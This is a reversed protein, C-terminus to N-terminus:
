AVWRIIDIVIMAIGLLLIVGIGILSAWSKFKKNIPKKTISEIICLLLQWGDLGPIPIFNMVALNISILGWLYFVYYPGISVAQETTRFISIIGGVNQWGSPTFLSGLAKVTNVIGYGQDYFSQVIARGFSTGSITSTGEEKIPSKRNYPKPSYSFYPTIGVSSVNSYYSYISLSANYIKPELSFSTSNTESYKGDAGKKAYTVTVQLSSSTEAPFLYIYSSSGTETEVTPQYFSGDDYEIFVQNLLTNSIDFYDEVNEKVRHKSAKIAKVTEDEFSSNTINKGSGDYILVDEPYDVTLELIRDGTEISNSLVSGSEITVRNTYVDQQPCFANGVFCLLYSIIVNMFIGAFMIIAQKWHAVGSFTREKPISPLEAEALTEDDNDSVMAVYGGLPICRINFTTEWLPKKTEKDKPNISVIKPGFGISYEVCYVKFLKAMSLHGFEHLCIVFCLGLIFVLISIFIQM